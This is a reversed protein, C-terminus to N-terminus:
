VAQNEDPAKLQRLENQRRQLLAVGVARQFEELGSHYVVDDAIHNRKLWEILAVSIGAEGTHSIIVEADSLSMEFNAVYVFKVIPLGGITKM